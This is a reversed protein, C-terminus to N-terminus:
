LMKLGKVWFLKCPIPDTPAKELAPSIDGRKKEAESKEPKKGKELVDRKGPRERLLGELKLITLRSLVEAAPRRTPRAMEELSLPDSGLLALLPDEPSPPRSLAPAAASWIYHIEM